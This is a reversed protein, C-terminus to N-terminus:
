VEEGRHTALWARRAERAAAFLANLAEGDGAALLRDIRELQTRYAALEVRLAGRNALCIDRWMEPDSSALRTFDRFGSAAFRFYEDADRRAALESVLAFALAHPLHSVAAFLQDHRAPALHGVRGGCLRWCDAVREVASPLTEPLPTLLVNKIQAQTRASLM